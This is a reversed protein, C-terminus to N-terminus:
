PGLQASNGIRKAVDAHWVVRDDVAYLWCPKGEQACRDLAKTMADPDNWFFRWGGSAYVVFAKPSPLTLYHRYRAQGEDRIPVANADDGAAFGTATPLPKRHPEVSGEEGGGPAATRAVPAPTRVATPRAWKAARGKLDVVAKTDGAHCEFQDVSSMAHNGYNSVVGVLATGGTKRVMQVMDALAQRLALQCVKDDSLTNDKHSNWPGYPKAVGHGEVLQQVVEAGDPLTAGFQIAVDGLLQRTAAQRLVPEVPLVLTTNRAHAAPLCSLFALCLLVPRLRKLARRNMRLMAGHTADIM